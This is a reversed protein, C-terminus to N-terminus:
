PSLRAIDWEGGVEPEKEEKGEEKRGEEKGREEGGKRVYEFRDHLRSERGQWFEVREPVVRVGGWFEPCPIEDVGKFREEVEGVWGELVERGDIRGSQRSAWAGIKSGRARTDFYKQSEEQSMKEVRGEIRVQREQERWWFALSVWSNAEVDKSKQSTGWNSYVVFGRGDMEKLYVYRSTVRGSPLSATSLCVTEPSVVGSTQASIYWSRFQQLPDSSLDSLNLSSLMFQPAQNHAAEAAAVAISPICSPGPGPDSPTSPCILPSRPAHLAM